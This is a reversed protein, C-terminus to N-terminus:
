RQSCACLKRVALGAIDEREAGVTNSRMLSGVQRREGVMPPYPPSNGGDMLRSLRVRGSGIIHVGFSARISSGGVGVGAIWKGGV